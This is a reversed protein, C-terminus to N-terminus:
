GTRPLFVYDRLGADCNSCSSNFLQSLFYPLTTHTVQLVFLVAADVVCKWDLELWAFILMAGKWLM